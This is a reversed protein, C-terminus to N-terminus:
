YCSKNKQQGPSPKTKMDNIHKKAEDVAKKGYKKVAEQVGKNQVLRVIAPIM